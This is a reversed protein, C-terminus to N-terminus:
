RQADLGHLPFLTRRIKECSAALASDAAAREVTQQARPDLDILGLPDRNGVVQGTQALLHEGFERRALNAASVAMTGSVAMPLPM